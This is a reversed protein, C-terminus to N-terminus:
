LYERQERKEEGRKSGGRGRVAQDLTNKMLKENVNQLHMEKHTHTLICISFKFLSHELIKRDTM